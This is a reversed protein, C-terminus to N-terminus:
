RAPGQGDVLGQGPQSMGAGPGYWIAGRSMLLDECAPGLRGDSKLRSRRMVEALRRDADDAPFLNGQLAPRAGPSEALLEVRLLGQRRFPLRRWLLEVFGLWSQWGSPEPGLVSSSHHRGQAWVTTLRWRGRSSPGGPCFTLARVALGRCLASRMLDSSVPRSLRVGVVLELGTAVAAPSGHDPVLFRTARGWAEDALVPGDEGFVSRLLAEPVVQLDGLTRVGLNQLRSVVGRRVSLFNVPFPQLFNAVQDPVVALIGGGSRAAVLSALGAAIRTPAVGAARVDRSDRALRSIHTAGDIGRGYLRETGTLDLFAGRSTLEWVPTTRRCFEAMSGTVVGDMEGSDPGAFRLHLISRRAM